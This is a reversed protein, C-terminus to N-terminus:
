PTYIDQNIKIGTIVPKLVPVPKKSIKAPKTEKAENGTKAPKEEVAPKEFLKEKKLGFTYANMVDGTEPPVMEFFTEGSAYDKWVYSLTGPLNFHYDANIQHCLDQWYSFDKKLEQLSYKNTKRINKAPDLPNTNQIIKSIIITGTPTLYLLAKSPSNTAKLFSIIGEVPWATASERNTGAYIPEIEGIVARRDKEGHYIDQIEITFTKIKNEGSFILVIDQAPNSDLMRNYTRTEATSASELLVQFKRLRSYDNFRSKKHGYGPTIRLATLNVPKIFVTKIWEGKRPDFNEAAIWPKEPERNFANKPGFKMESGEELSSSASVVSGRGYITIAQQAHAGSTMSIMLMFMIILFLSTNKM